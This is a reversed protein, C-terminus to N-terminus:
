HGKGPKGPKDPKGPEGPKGPKEPKEKGQVTVKLLLETGGITVFVDATGKKLSTVTNGEIAIIRSATTYLAAQSTVDETLPGYAAQVTVSHHDGQHLTVENQNLSYGTFSHVNVPPLQVEESSM